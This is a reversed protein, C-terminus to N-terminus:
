NIEGHRLTFMYIDNYKYMGYQELRKTLKKLDDFTQPPEDPNDENYENVDDHIQKLIFEFATTKEKFLSITAEDTNGTGDYRKWPGIYYQAVIYAM